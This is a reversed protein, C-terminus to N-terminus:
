SCCLYTLSGAPYGLDCLSYRPSPTGILRVSDIEPYGRLGCGSVEVRVQNTAFPALCLKPRFVRYRLPQPVGCVGEDECAWVEIWRSSLTERLFVKRVSGANINEFVEIAEVYLKTKYTLEVWENANENCM